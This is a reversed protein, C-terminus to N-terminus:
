KKKRRRRRRKKAKPKAAVNEEQAAPEQSENSPAPSSAAQQIQAQAQPGFTFMRNVMSSRMDAFLQQYMAFAKAKYEVLPDRQAYAELRISIRLAEMSTLYDIWLESIVRLLLQRYNESLTLAGLAEIAQKQKDESLATLAKSDLNELESKPLLDALANRAIESIAGQAQGQHIAEWSSFGWVRQM